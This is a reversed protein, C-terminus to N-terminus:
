CGHALQGFTRGNANAPCRRPWGMFRSRYASTDAFITASNSRPAGGHILGHDAVAPWLTGHLATLLLGYEPQLTMRSQIAWAAPYRVGRYRVKLCAKSNPALALALVACPDIEDLLELDAILARIFRCRADNGHHPFVGNEVDILTLAQGVSRQRQTLDLHAIPVFPVGGNVFKKPAAASRDPLPCALGVIPWAVVKNAHWAEFRELASGMKVPNGKM